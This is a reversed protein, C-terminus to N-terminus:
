EHKALAEHTLQHINNLIAASSASPFRADVEEAILAAAELNGFKVYIWILSQLGSRSIPELEASARIANLIPAPGAPTFLRIFKLDAAFEARLATLESNIEDRSKYVGHRVLADFSRLATINDLPNERTVIINATAGEVIRGATESRELHIAADVTASRIAEVPSLGAETLLELEEYLSFAPLTTPNPADTGALIVVGRASLAAVLTKLEEFIKALRVATEQSLHKNPNFDSAWFMQSLPAMYAIESRSINAAFDSAQDVIMKYNVLTATLATSSSKMQAAVEDLLQRWDSNESKMAKLLDEAHAIDDYVGTRLVDSLLLNEPLHGTIKMAGRPANAFTDLMEKDFSDYLKIWDYGAALDEAFGARIEAPSAVLPEEYQRGSTVLEATWSDGLGAKDRLKLHWDWGDMNRVTQVGMLAYLQLDREDFIHVHLDYLAPTLYAGGMNLRRVSKPWQAETQSAISTIHGSEILVYRNRIVRGSEVDVVHVDELILADRSIPLGACAALGALSVLFILYSFGSLRHMCM